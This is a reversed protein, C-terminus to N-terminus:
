EDESNLADRLTEIRHCNVCSWNPHTRDHPYTHDDELETGYEIANDVVARAAAELKALRAELQKIEEKVTNYGIHCM